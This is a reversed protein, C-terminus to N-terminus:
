FMKKILEIEDAISEDYSLFRHVNRDMLRINVDEDYQVVNNEDIYAIFKNISVYISDDEDVYRIDILKLKKLIALFKYFNRKNFKFANLCEDLFSERNLIFGGDVEMEGMMYVMLQALSRHGNALSMIYVVLNSNTYFKDYDGFDNSKMKQEEIIM